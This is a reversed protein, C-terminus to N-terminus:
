MVVIGFGSYRIITDKPGKPYGLCEEVELESIAEEIAGPSADPTRGVRGVRSM